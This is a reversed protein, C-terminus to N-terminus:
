GRVLLLKETEYYDLSNLFIKLQHKCKTLTLPYITMHSSIKYYLYPGLFCTHRQAYASGFREPLILRDKRRQNEYSCYDFNTMAHTRLIAKNIFSQRVTLVKVESYLQKTPYRFPKSLMIKLVARQSRETRLLYSKYTGGWISVCYTLLSNCIAYYVTLLLKYPLHRLRRFVIILKRIRSTIMITHEKWSLLDDVIVGLYKTSSVRELLSCSCSQSHSVNCSDHARLNISDKKPRTILTKSFTLYKTKNVNLSLLNIRLWSMVEKLGIEALESVKNWTSASFILATDDAYAILKGGDLQLCCLDNVYVLFLTPGLISGQPVGYSISTVNSVMDDMKVRQLRQTLYSRFLRLCEDRVGLNGMKNLLIPVSVTDFAKSLDLFIGICKNNQDVQRVIFDTLSSVADETSKGSVFGFQNESLLKYKTLFSKLRNNILRELIKSLSSLISIPRYNSVSDRDGGKYIPNILSTKFSTPFQSTKFSLNCIHTIAPVILDKATKLVKAPIGDHGVACNSKLGMLVTEVEIPNTDVLGLTHLSSKLKCNFQSPKDTVKKKLIEKSLNEGINAFYENVLNLSEISSPKLNLLQCRNESDKKHKFKAINKIIRWTKKSDNRAEDLKTQDFQVKVKNLINACYNRYRKYTINLTENGPDQKSKYHLRDRNKICKLLGPTLWPVKIIKRCPVTKVFTNRDIAKKIVDVLMETAINVDHIDLISNLFTQDLDENIKEYNIIKYSNYKNGLSVNNSLSILITYHDTITSTLVLTTSPLNTKLFAHDLNSNSKSRTIFSHSSLLGHYAM